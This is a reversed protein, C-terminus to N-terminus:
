TDCIATIICKNKEGEILLSFFNLGLSGRRCLVSFNCIIKQRWIICCHKNEKWFKQFMFNNLYVSWTNPSCNEGFYTLVQALMQFSILMCYKLESVVCCPFLEVSEILFKWFYILVLKNLNFVSLVQNKSLYKSAITSHKASRFIHIVSKWVSWYFASIEINNEKRLYLSKSLFISPM